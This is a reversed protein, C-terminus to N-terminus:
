KRRYNNKSNPRPTPEFDVLFAEQISDVGIFNEEKQDDQKISIKDETVGLLLGAFNKQGKIPLKTSLKIKKGLSAILDKYRTLPRNLGPSSVELSYHGDIPDDVDLLVSVHRSIKECDEVRIQAGDIRDAMIQLIKRRMGGMIKIRVLEYGMSVVDREIIEAIKGEVQSQYIHM